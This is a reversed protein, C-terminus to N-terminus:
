VPQNKQYVIQSHENLVLVLGHTVGVVYGHHDARNCVASGGGVRSWDCEIGNHTETHFVRKDNLPGFGPSNQPQNRIFLVRGTAATRVMVFRKAVGGAYGRRDARWCVVAGEAVNTPWTCQIGALTRVINARSASVASSAGYATGTLVALTVLFALSILRRLTM